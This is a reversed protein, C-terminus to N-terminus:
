EQPLNGLENNQDIAGQDGDGPEAGQESGNEESGSESGEGQDGGQQESGQEGGEANETSPAGGAPKKGNMVDILDTLENKVSEVDVHLDDRAYAIVGYLGGNAFKEISKDLVPYNNVGYQDMASRFKGSLVNLMIMGLIALLIGIIGCVYGAKSKSREEAEAKKNKLITFVIALVAFVVPVAFGIWRFVFPLLFGTLIALVGFLIAM